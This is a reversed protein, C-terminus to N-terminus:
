LRGNGLLVVVKVVEGDIEGAMCDGEEELHCAGSSM